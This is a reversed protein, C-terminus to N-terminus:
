AARRKERARVRALDSYALSLSIGLRASVDRVSLGEAVLRAVNEQRIRVDRDPAPGAADRLPILGLARLHRAVTGRSLGTMEAIKTVSCDPEWAARVAESAGSPSHRPREPPCAHTKGLAKLDLRLTSISVGLQGMIEDRSAGRDVMAAVEQRRKQARASLVAGGRSSANVNARGAAAGVGRLRNSEADWALGEASVGRPVVAVRVGAPVHVGYTEAIREREADPLIATPFDM